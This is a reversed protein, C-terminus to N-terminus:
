VPETPGILEGYPQYGPKLAAFYVLQQDGAAEVFVAHFLLRFTNLAKPVDDPPMRVVFLGGPVLARHVEPFWTGPCRRSRVAGLTGTPYPAGGVAPLWGPRDEDTFDLAPLHHRQCRKLILPELWQRCVRIMEADILRMQEIWTNHEHLHYTYLYDPVNVVEGVMFLRCVLDIDDCIALGDGHEGAAVYASARWARVHDPAFGARALNQPLPPPANPVPTADIFRYSWGHSMNFVHLNGDTRMTACDSYVMAATPHAAFAAILVRLCRPRLEDDHDLEVHISGRAARCGYRKTSATGPPIADHYAVIRVRQDDACGTIERVREPTMRGNAVVIWEWEWDPPLPEQALLSEYARRIWDPRHTPTVVSIIPM